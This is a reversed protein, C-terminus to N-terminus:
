IGSTALQLSPDIDADDPDRPAFYSAAAIMAANDTSFEVPPILLVDGFAQQMRERLLANASVGGVVAVSAVGTSEFAVKTKSV